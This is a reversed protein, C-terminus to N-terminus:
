LMVATPFTIEGVGVGFPIHEGNFKEGFFDGNWAERSFGVKFLGGLVHEM